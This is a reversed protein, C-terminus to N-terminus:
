GSKMISLLLYTPKPLFDDQCTSTVCKCASAATDQAVAVYRAGADSRAFELAANNHPLLLSRTAYASEGSPLEAPRGSLGSEAIM